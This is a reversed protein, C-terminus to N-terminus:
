ELDEEARLEDVAEVIRYFRREQGAADPDVFHIHGDRVTNEEVRRWHIFDTTMEIAYSVGPRGDFCLNIMGDPLELCGPRPRDNDLIYAGARGPRGIVYSPDGLIALDAALPAEILKVLVTELREPLHDDVPLVRIVGSRRGAPITVMGSLEQYDGGNTATGAVTYFVNLASGTPGTRKVRFYAPDPEGDPGGERAHPDRAHITVVPPGDPRTVKIHVPESVSRLGENDVAVATLVHRGAPADEWKMEFVQEQGPPPAQIFDMSVEGIQDGNAFFQVLRVWGDPDKAEARLEIDTLADFVDGDLPNTLAIKPRHNPQVDNDRIYALARAPEGIEYCSPDPPWIAPCAVPALEIVVTETGEALNDDIPRIVVPASWEGAPILVRGSLQLYDGGNAATGGLHYAVELPHESRINRTVKFLATDPAIGGAGTALSGESAIPDVVQISVKPIPHHDVVSIKVPESKGMGGRDDTAKAVLLYDGPQANQWVMSFTMEQGPDPEQIFVIEQEGIKDGNAFFEVKPVWGDPDVAVAVIEIPTRVGFEAGSQPKTIMVKPLRNEGTDDDRIFAIAEAPEHVVYCDLPPPEIAVCVPPDIRLVVTETGEVLEDDWPLVVVDVHWQNAPIVAVGGLERYDVGNAATGGIRYRVELPFSVDCARRSIRITATDPARIPALVGPPFEDPTQETAIPDLATIWVHTRSCPDIVRVHVRGTATTAGDDDTAVAHVFYEGTAPAEWLLRFLHERLADAATNLGPVVGLSEGNAFFEVRTVQGDRDHAAAVLKIDTGRHFVSGDPPSLLAIRPPLNSPVPEDDHIVARALAPEGVVYHPRPSIVADDLPLSRLAIIVTEDGESEQDDVPNIILPASSEGAPIEVMGSLEDYDVGNAATGGVRYWVKLGHDTSGTRHVKFAATDPLVDLLPSQERAESDITHITVVPPRQVEVVKIEVPRSWTQDGDDDTALARLVYRGAPVDNWAFAFPQLVPQWGTGDENLPRLLMPPQHVIGLSNEGEFFEVSVVRGDRDRADAVISIDAPARFIGGDSPRVIEIRPPLNGPPQDNDRIVARAIGHRGVHYAEPAPAFRADTTLPVLSLVVPERGEVLEDDIPDVIVEVGREGAPITAMTPLEVYDVGNQAEGGLRYFVDLPANLPGRRFIVFTATDQRIPANLTVPGGLDLVSVGGETATPDKAVVNVVPVPPPPLVTLKIPASETSAGDNDTAVAVLEYDGPAVNEWKLRFLHHPLLEDNASNPPQPLLNPFLDVAEAALEMVGDAEMTLSAAKLAVWNRAVGISEGNAFFEVSEVKGDADWARAVLPIDTPGEVVAGDPPNTIAVVPPLNAPRDDDIVTVVGRHPWCVVYPPLPGAVPSNIVTAVVRETGEVLEDDIAEIKIPAFSIGAPITVQGGLEAYDVGNEAAGDLHYYVTLPQGTPGTRVVLFRGDESGNENALPDTTLLIVLPPHYEAAKLFPVAGPALLAALLCLWLYRMTKM